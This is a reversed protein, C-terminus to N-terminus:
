AARPDALRELAAVLREAAGVRCGLDPSYAFVELLRGEDNGLGLRGALDRGMERRHERGARCAQLEDEAQIVLCDREFLCLSHGCGPGDTRERPAALDTTM